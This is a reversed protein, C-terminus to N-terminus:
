RTRSCTPTRTDRRPWPRARDRRRRDGAAGGRRASPQRIRHRRAHGMLGGAGPEAPEPAEVGTRGIPELRRNRREFVCIREVGLQDLFEMAEDYGFGVQDPAHADSSLAFEAGAEVACRPWRARRISRVSRSAFAPPRCRSRSRPSPWDGRRVARLPLASRARPRPPRRGLDQGSRSPLRHRLPGLPGAGGAVRLLQELASDADRFAEWVDYRRDDVAGKEGLFHVSGIVYDFDHAELLSAIRDERGLIYDAELGLRLPTTAFSSATPASTMWPRTGGTRTSGSRSRRPSATSTSPSASSPSGRSRPRRWTATSTRRPSPTPRRGSRTPACICTTTPSCAGFTGM